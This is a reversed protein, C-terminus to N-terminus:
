WDVAGRCSEGSAANRARIEFRDTGSLDTLLREVEFSGSSGRTVATGRASVSGNHRMSWRWAQGRRNGDVELELEVRDDDYKAKIEWRASGSCRGSRRVEDRDDDDDDGGHGSGHGSSDDDGGGSRAAVPGALSTLTGLLTGALLLALPRAASM